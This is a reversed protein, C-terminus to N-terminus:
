AGFRRRLGYVLAVLALTNCAIVAALVVLGTWTWWVFPRAEIIWYALPQLLVYHVVWGLGRAVPGPSAPGTDVIALGWGNAVLFGVLGAAAHIGGLIYLYKYKM